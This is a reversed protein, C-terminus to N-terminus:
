IGFDNFVVGGVTGNGGAIQKWNTLAGVQIPSSYSTTTGNGLQGLANNGIVWGTGDTKV